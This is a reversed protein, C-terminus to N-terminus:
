WRRGRRGEGRVKLYVAETRATVEPWGFAREIRPRAELAERQASEWGELVEGIGKALAASDGPAVLKGAGAVALVEPLSGARTAVVPTGAALAELAPLGFGEFLSPLVVVSAETFARELESRPLKGEFRVREAIRLARILQDLPTGHPYHDLVRLSVNGPLLPLAGLLFELGKNPDSARGLFLLETRAPRPRAASPAPLDVGNHVNYIRAPDVGFGHEIESASRESSTIVAALRRSVRAQTRVPYFTLTGKRELFSTDRQLSSRLDVSLPHHITSVVPLGLAQLWLLGYSLSQVDHVVSYSVGSRLKQMVARAARLSFSLHEPFCGFATVAYEFFNLPQLIRLPDPRPLFAGPRPDFRKGWFRQNEIPFVRAWPMPDPLPPGVFCDIEWGRRALEQTLAFLYVGQGGSTMNGRYCLFAARM